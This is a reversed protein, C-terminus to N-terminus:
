ANVAGMDAVGTRLTGFFDEYVPVATGSSLGYSGGTLAFDSAVLPPQTAWLPSTNKFQSNTTDTLETYNTPSSVGIPVVMYFNTGGTFDKVTNPSYVLNNRLRCGTWAPTKSSNLWIFSFNETSVGSISNDEIAYDSGTALVSASGDSLQIFVGGGGLERLLNNRIRIGSIATINIMGSTASGSQHLFLNREIIVNRIRENVSSNQPAVQLLQASVSAGQDFLTDSIIAYETWAAQSRDGRIAQLWKNTATNVLTNSTYITKNAMQTRINHEINTCNTISCGMVANGSTADMWVGVNGGGGGLQDATCEVVFLRDGGSEVITSAKTVDCRLILLDPQVSNSLRATFTGTFATTAQIDMIRLDAASPCLAGYNTTSSILNILPKAGSGYAGITLGTFAPVNTTNSSTFSDGRCLLLRQNNATIKAVALEITALQFCQAGAPVGNVGAVPLSSSSVCITNSGSYVTAPDSVTITSGTLTVWANGDYVQLTPVYTGPSEYVHAGIAGTTRNKKTVGPQAGYGWTVTDNDGYNIRYLLDQFPMSTLVSTTGTADFSVSLPAVGSTRSISLSPTVSSSSGAIWERNLRLRGLATM